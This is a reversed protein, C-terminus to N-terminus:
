SIVVDTGIVFGNNIFAQEIHKRQTELTGSPLNISIGNIDAVNITYIETKGVPKTFTVNLNFENKIEEHKIRINFSYINKIVSYGKIEASSYISPLGTTSDKSFVKKSPDSLGSFVVMPIKSDVNLTVSDIIDQEFKIFKTPVIFKVFDSTTGYLIGANNSDITNGFCIKKSFQSGGLVPELKIEVGQEYGNESKCLTDVNVDIKKYEVFKYRTIDNEIAKLVENRYSIVEKRYMEKQQRERYSDVTSFLGLSVTMVIVFTIILEVVTFGKNNM